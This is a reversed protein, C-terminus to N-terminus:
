EPEHTDIILDFEHGEESVSSMDELGENSDVVENIDQLDDM